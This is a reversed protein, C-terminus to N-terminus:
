SRIEGVLSQIKIVKKIMSTSISKEKFSEMLGLVEQSKKQMEPDAKIEETSLSNKVIKKLRGLEENLFLKFELGNDAFSFVYKQLLQKQEAMLSKNYEENFKKIFNKVILNDVRPFTDQKEDKKITLWELVTDELLVRKKPSYEDDFIQYITAINKYNPVFNSFIDKSLNKNIEKILNSQELFITKKDLKKYQNKTEIILKEAVYPKLCSDSQLSNYLDLEKKLTSNKGFHEKVVSVIKSKYKNDKRIVARTLERVLAEYLFATNRKKNHRLKM